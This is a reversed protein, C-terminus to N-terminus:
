SKVEALIMCPSGDTKSVRLPAIYIKKFITNDSVNSLDMDEIILIPKTPNLLNKHVIRGEKRHQWSSVSISDLGFIKINKFKKRIWKSAEISLGPNYKWYKQQDRYKSFGTKLILFKSSRNLKQNKIHEIKILLDNKPINVNLIQIEKGDLIWFDATFDDITQGNDYFHYPFDIHTGLHNPLKWISTNASDGNKISSKNKSVFGKKGGYMPTNEDIPHSLIINM